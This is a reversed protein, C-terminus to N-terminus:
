SPNGGMTGKLAVEINAPVDALNTVRLRINRDIGQFLFPETEFLANGKTGLIAGAYTPATVLVIQADEDWLELTWTSGPADDPDQDSSGVIALLSFDPALVLSTEDTGGAELQTFDASLWCPSGGELGPPSAQGHTFVAKQPTKPVLGPFFNQTVTSFMRSITTTDIRIM